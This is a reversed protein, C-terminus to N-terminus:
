LSSLIIHQFNIKMVIFYYKKHTLYKNGYKTNMPGYLGERGELNAAKIWLEKGRLYVNHNISTKAFVSIAIAINERFYVNSDRLYM